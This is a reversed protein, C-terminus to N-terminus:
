RMTQRLLCQMQRIGKEQSTIIAELVPRLEPCINYSLATSAMRIAGRHHPIMERMFNANLQNNTCASSMESFMTQMIKDIKCEYQEVDPICNVLKECCPLITTMDDISKEQEEIIGLAINQLPICTTYQLLNKSMNIAAMHHPIMRMIFNYSISNNPCVATMEDIMTDLIAYFEEVYATTVISMNCNMFDGLCM